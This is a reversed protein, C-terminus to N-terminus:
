GFTISFELTDTGTGTLDVTKNTGSVVAPGTSSLARKLPEGPRLTITWASGFMDSGNSAGKAITIDAVGTNRMSVVRPRLGSGDVTTVIGTLATFDLTKAGAVLAYEAGSFKTAVPSSTANLTLTTGPAHTIQANAAFEIGTEITEVVRDTFNYVGNVSM